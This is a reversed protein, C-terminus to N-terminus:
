RRRSRLGPMAQGVVQGLRRYHAVFQRLRSDGAADYRAAMWDSPPLAIRRLTGVLDRGRDVLLLGILHEAARRQAPGRHRLLWAMAAARPGRPELDKMLAAPARVGFLAEVERLAFYVATRVRWRSARASVAQWDLTEAWRGLLLFLDYYWLLGALSHHVALHVSLYLLLDEPCLGLAEEGAVPMRVARDWVAQGERENWAYRPESLLSWHLDVHVGSPSSYLTAHDYAVDFRFSHEDAVRRYGLRQLLDDVREVNERRILLDLDSCPRIAPDPYLTEALAPGKLPIVPVHEREFSKLLRGLEGSLALHRATGEVLHRRLRERVAPPTREPAASKWAFGLAAALSEGEAKDVVGNWDLLDTPVPPAEHRALARLCDILWRTEASM